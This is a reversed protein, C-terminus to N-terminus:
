CQRSVEVWRFQWCALRRGVHEAGDAPSTRDKAVHLYQLSVICMKCTSCAVMRRAGEGAYWRELQMLLVGASWLGKEVLSEIAEWCIDALRYAHFVTCFVGDGAADVTRRQYLLTTVGM